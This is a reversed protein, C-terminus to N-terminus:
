GFYHDVVFQNQDYFVGRLDNLVVRDSYGPNLYSLILVSRVPRVLYVKYGYAWALSVLRFIVFACIVFKEM